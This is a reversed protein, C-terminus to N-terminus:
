DDREFPERPKAQLGLLSLESHIHATVQGIVQLRESAFESVEAAHESIAAFAADADQLQALADSLLEFLRRETPNLSPIAM